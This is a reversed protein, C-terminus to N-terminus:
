MKAGLYQLAMQQAIRYAYTSPDDKAGYRKVLELCKKIPMTKKGAWTDDDGGAPKKIATCKGAMIHVREGQFKAYREKRKPNNAWAPFWVFDVTVLHKLPGPAIVAGTEEAAERKGAVGANEGADLGGGAFMVFRDRDQAVVQGKGYLLFVETKERFPLQSRSM